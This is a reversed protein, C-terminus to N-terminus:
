AHEGRDRAAREPEHRAGVRHQFRKDARRVEGCVCLRGCCRRDYVYDRIASGDDWIDVCQRLLARQLSAAVVGHATEIRQREGYPNALRLITARVGHLRKFLLVYKEVALKTIGYSVQPETPHQEDIPLYRPAAYVTGGFSVFIIRSTKRQVMLNLIQLTGVLNTQVDYIPDENSGKPLTTSVLISVM